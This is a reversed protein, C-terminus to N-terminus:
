VTQNINLTIYKRNRGMTGFIVVGSRSEPAATASIVLNRNGAGYFPSVTVWDPKSIVDWSYTASIKVMQGTGAAVLNLETKDLNFSNLFLNNNNVYVGDAPQVVKITKSLGAVNVTITGLRSNGTTNTACRVELMTRIAKFKGITRKSCRIWSNSSTATWTRNSKIATSENNGKDMTICATCNIYPSAPYQTVTITASKGTNNKLIIIGYRNALGGYAVTQTHLTLETETSSTVVQNNSNLLKIWDNKFHVYWSGSSKVKIEKSANDVITFNTIDTEIFDFKINANVYNDKDTIRLLSAKTSKLGNVDFDYINNVNYLNHGISVFKNFKFLNYDVLNLNFYGTLVKSDIYREDIWNKWCADYIYKTTTSYGGPYM